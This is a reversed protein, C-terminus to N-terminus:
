EKFVDNNPFSNQCIRKVDSTWPATEYRCSTGFCHDITNEHCSISPQDKIKTLNMLVGNYQNSRCFCARVDMASG